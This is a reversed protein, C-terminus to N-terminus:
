DDLNRRKYPVEIRFISGNGLESQVDVIGHYQKVISQIADLGYGRARGKTSFGREFIREMTGEDVGIGTDKVEILIVEEEEDYYLFLTAKKIVTLDMAEKANDLLIGMSLLLDHLIEGMKMNPFLSDSDIILKVGQEKLESAKGILFGAVAPSKIKDTVFGIERHYDTNLVRIYHVVDQYKGLETLGLITHLQNMFKHNQARLSDIYQETGSLERILQQMESQDRLTAVAGYIRNEIYILQVNVIFEFQNVVIVHNSISKGTTFVEEFFTSFIDKDLYGDKMNDGTFRANKILKTFNLNQLLIKRAPTVAIIGEGVSDIIIDREKINAVIQKPELGLLMKKLQQALYMAGLMGVFIGVGIGLYLNKQTKWLEQYITQQVFGVCVIGVQKGEKNWIPTFFRTGEGLVGEERSFHETGNLSKKADEINSFPKGIVSEDPHSKRILDNNLVVVFSVGSSEMVELTFQQIASSYSDNDVENIVRPDKAVMRAISALKEKVVNHERKLVYLNLLSSAVLSVIASTLVLLITMKKLSLKALWKNEIM